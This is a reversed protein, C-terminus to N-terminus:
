LDAITLFNPWNVSKEKAHAHGVNEGHAELCSFDTYETVDIPVHMQVDARLHFAINM